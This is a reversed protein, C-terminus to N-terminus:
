ARKLRIDQGEGRNSTKMSNYKGVNLRKKIKRVERRQKMEDRKYFLREGM